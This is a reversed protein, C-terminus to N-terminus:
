NKLNEIAALETTPSPIQGFNLSICARITTKTIQLFLSSGGFFSYVLTTM